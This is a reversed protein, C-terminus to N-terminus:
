LPALKSITLGILAGAAFLGAALAERPLSLLGERRFAPWLVALVPIESTAAAWVLGHLGGLLWGLPLGGIVWIARGLSRYFGYRTKGIAFLCTECPTTISAMAVRVVLM